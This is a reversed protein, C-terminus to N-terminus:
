TKSKLSIPCSCHDTYTENNRIVSDPGKQISEGTVQSEHPKKLRAPTLSSIGFGTYTSPVTLTKDKETM